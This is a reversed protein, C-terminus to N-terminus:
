CYQSQKLKLFLIIVNLSEISGKRFVFLRINAIIYQYGQKSPM